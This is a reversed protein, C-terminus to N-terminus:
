KFVFPPNAADMEANWAEFAARLEELIEPHDAARDLTERPDGVVDFLFEAKGSRVYKWRGRTAARQFRERPPLPRANPSSPAAPPTGGAITRPGADKDKDPEAKPKPEEATAPRPRNAPTPTPAPAPAGGGPRDIRWFLTREPLADARGELLPTLDAGDLALGKEAPDIGAMALLTATLDMTICPERIVRGAPIRGPLRAVCPVRTGGEFLSGKYDRLGGQESLREGGNDNTFIVLTNDRAGIADIADLLQGVSQDLSEVMARYIARDGDFWTERTRALDPRGPPQFPWHVTNYPVYAFFPRNSGARERIWAAAREGLLETSYGEREVQELNELWDPDDNIERHTYHDVNGSLLGYFTDFGHANPGFEPAYGLHWKGFAATDYGRERLLRPLTPITAPLGGVKQGPGIAWELGFRQQYRGTMLAARTPTCVPGNSHFRDFRAGEIALRDLRPTEIDGSGMFGLDGYGLDDVMVLLINPPASTAPNPTPNPNANPNPEDADAVASAVTAFAAALCVAIAARARIRAAAFHPPLRHGRARM